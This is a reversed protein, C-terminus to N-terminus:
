VLIRKRQSSKGRQHAWVNITTATRAVTNVHIAGSCSRAKAHFIRRHPFDSSINISPEPWPWKLFRDCQSPFTLYKLSNRQYKRKEEHTKNKKEGNEKIQLDIQRSLDNETFVMSEKVM